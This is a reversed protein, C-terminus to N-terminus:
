SKLEQINKKADVIQKEIAEIVGNKADEETEFYQFCEGDGVHAWGNSVTVDDLDCQCEKVKYSNGYILAVWPKKM